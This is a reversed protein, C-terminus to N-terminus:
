RRSAQLLGIGVEVPCHAVIELFMTNRHNWVDPPAIFGTEVITEKADWLADDDAYACMSAESGDLLPAKEVTSHM